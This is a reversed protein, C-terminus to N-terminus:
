FSSHQGLGFKKHFSEPVHFHFDSSMIITVQGLHGGRGYM